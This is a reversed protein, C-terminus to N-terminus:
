FLRVTVVGVALKTPLVYIYFVTRCWLVNAENSANATNAYECYNYSGVKKVVRLFYKKVLVYYLVTQFRYVNAVNAYELFCGARNPVCLLFCVEEM